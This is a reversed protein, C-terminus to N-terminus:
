FKASDTLDLTKAKAIQSLANQQKTTRRQMTAAKWSRDKRNGQQNQKSKSNETINTKMLM